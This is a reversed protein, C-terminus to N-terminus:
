ILKRRYKFFLFTILISFILVLLIGITDKGISSKSPVNLNIKFSTKKTTTIFELHQKNIDVEHYNKQNSFINFMVTNTIADFNNGALLFVVTNQHSHGQSNVEKVSVLSLLGEGKSISFNDNIYKFFATDFDNQSNSNELEPFADLVANRISWPFEAQVEVVDDKQQIKFFAKNADHAFGNSIFM